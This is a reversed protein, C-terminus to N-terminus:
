MVEALGTVRSRRYCVHHVAQGREFESLDPNLDRSQQKCLLLVSGPGEGGHVATGGKHCFYECPSM